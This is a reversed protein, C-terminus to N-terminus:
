AATGRAKRKIELSEWIPSERRAENLFIASLDDHGYAAAIAALRILSIGRPPRVTEWRCVTVSTVEIAHAFQEQTKACRKRLDVLAVQTATRRTSM